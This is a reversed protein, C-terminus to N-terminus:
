GLAGLIEESHEGLTPAALPEDGPIAFPLRFSWTDHGRHVAQPHELAREPDRVIEVCVDGLSASAILTEWESQTRSLVLAVVADRASPDLHRAILDPRDVADCFSKWFKPELAGVALTGGDRTAYVAYGPYRGSLADASAGAALMSLSLLGEQMSLDLYRGRGEMLAALIGVVGFLGGSAFDAVQMPLPKGVGSLGGTSAVYNVDHGARSRYPGSQGYGSISVYVIRPALEQVAEFGLGLRAMVGPRFSEILVDSTEVLDRCRAVGNPSKLDLVVSKKGANLRDFAVPDLGRLPDGDPPAELKIVEAGLSACVLSAYPGPAYRGFDLIRTGELPRV